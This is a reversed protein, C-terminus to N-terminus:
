TLSEPGLRELDEAVYRKSVRKGKAELSYTWCGHKHHWVRERVAGQHLTRNRQNPVVRVPSGVSYRPAARDRDKSREEPSPAGHDALLRAVLGELCGLANVLPSAIPGEQPAHPPGYSFLLEGARASVAIRGAASSEGYTRNSTLSLRGLSTTVGIRAAWPRRRAEALLGLLADSEEPLCSQLVQELVDAQDLPAWM